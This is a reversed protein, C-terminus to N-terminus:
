QLPLDPVLVHLALALGAGSLQRDREDDGVPRRASAARQGQGRLVLRRIPLAAAQHLEDPLVPEFDAPRRRARREAGPGDALADDPRGTWLPWPGGGAARGSIPGEEARGYLRRDM